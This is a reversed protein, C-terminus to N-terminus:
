GKLEQQKIFCVVIQDITTKEVVCSKAFLVSANSDVIGEFGVSTKKIGIIKAELKETLDQLGGKVLVYKELIEDKTDFLVKKGNEIFFIYDAIQELDSLIHTSFLVSRTGDEIYGQILELVEDKVVPDLGNTAEDLILLRTDRALISAFMLRVKMGRSYEKLKRDKPLKWRQVYRGFEGSRFGPYFDKLVKEVEVLTFDEPFYTEDGIYGIMEKYAAPDEKYAIGNIRVEGKDAKLLHTIINLTTTKGAGNQGVYGMIYGAPLEFGIDQLAFKGFDKYLGKVSLVNM